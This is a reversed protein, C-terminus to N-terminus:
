LKIRRKRRKKRKWSSERWIIPNPWRWEIEEMSDLRIFSYKLTQGKWKAKNLMKMCSSIAEENTNILDVYSISDRCFIVFIGLAKAFAMKRESSRWVTSMFELCEASVLASM